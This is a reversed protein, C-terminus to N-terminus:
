PREVVMEEFHSAKQLEDRYKAHTFEDITAGQLDAGEFSASELKTRILVAQRLDSNDFRAQSMRAESLNAGRLNAGSFVTQELICRIMIADTFDARRFSTGAFSSESLLASQMQVDDLCLHDFKLRTLNPAESGQRWRNFGTVLERLLLMQPNGSYDLSRIWEPLVRRLLTEGDRNDEYILIRFPQQDFPITHGDQLLPIINKGLTHAIGLEYYVNPNANSLDAIVLAAENLGAWIDHLIVRGYYEDARRCIYNLGEVTEKIITYTRNSWKERLPMLVFCLKPDIRFERGQFFEVPFVQM